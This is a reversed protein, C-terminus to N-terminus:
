KVMSTGSKQTTGRAVLYTLTGSFLIMMLAIASAQSFDSEETWIFFLRVSLTANATAFLILSLTTDNVAHIFVWLWSRLLSPRVLPFVVNVMTRLWGAGSVHSAEELEKHIQLFAPGMLRTSFVIFRTTLGIVLMAITGYIPVPLTLYLFVLGIGLVVSPTALALFTFRDALGAGRFPRRV